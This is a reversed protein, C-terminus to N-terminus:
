FPDDDGLPDSGDNQEKKAKDQAKLAEHEAREREIFELMFDPMIAKPPKTAKGDATKLGRVGVVAQAMTDRYADSLRALGSTKIGKVRTRVTKVEILGSEQATIEKEETREIDTIPAANHKEIATRLWLTLEELQDQVKFEFEARRIALDVMRKERAERVQGDLYLDYAACREIWRFTRSWVDWRGPADGRRRKTLKRWAGAITRDALLDRYITFATWAKSSEGPQREDWLAM